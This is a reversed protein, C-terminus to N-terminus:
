HAMLKKTSPAQANFTWAPLNIKFQSEYNPWSYCTRKRSFLDQIPKKRLDFLKKQGKQTMLGAKSLEMKQINIASLYQQKKTAHLRISYSENDISRRWRWDLWAYHKIWPNSWTTSPKDYWKISFRRTTRNRKHHKKLWARFEAKHQLFTAAM